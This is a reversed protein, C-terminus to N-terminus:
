RSTIQRLLTGLDGGFEAARAAVRDPLRRAEGLRGRESRLLETLADGATPQEPDVMEVLLDVLDQLTEHQQVDTLGQDALIGQWLFELNSSHRENRESLTLSDLALLAMVVVTKVPPDGRLFYVRTLQEVAKRGAEQLVEPFECLREVIWAHAANSLADLDTLEFHLYNTLIHWEHRSCGAPLETSKEIHPALREELAHCRLDAQDRPVSRDTLREIEEVTLYTLLDDIM